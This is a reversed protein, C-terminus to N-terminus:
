SFLRYALLGMFIATSGYGIIIAVTLLNTYYQSIVFIQLVTLVMIATIIYQCITVIKVLLDIHPTKIKSEKIKAKVMGLILYQGLGYIAAFTCLTSKGL